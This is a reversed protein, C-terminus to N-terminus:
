RTIVQLESRRFGNDSKVTVIYAGNSLSSTNIQVKREFGPKTHQITKGDMTQVLVESIPFNAEVIFHDRAPNPYMNLRYDAYVDHIVSTPEVFVNFSCTEQQGRSDTITWTISTNDPITVGNLSRDGNINNSLSEINFDDWAFEPDLEGYEAVFYAGAGVNAVFYQDDRCVLHPPYDAYDGMGSWQSDLWPLREIIFDKLMTIEEEHTEPWEVNPWLYTGLVPWRDYNRDIAPGMLTVCSDIIHEINQWSLVNSRLDDWRGYAIDAYWPDEMMRRWHFMRGGRTYIFGDDAYVNGYNVNGWSLNYDWVPGSFFKGGDSDKDKYFYTSFHYCDVNMSMENIFMMHIYSFVDTYKRYGDLSDRFNSSILADEFTKTFDVIYRRQEYAMDEYKPDYFMYLSQLGYPRDSPGRWYEYSEMDTTKDNRVLYGGTLEDGETDTPLLKAINVRGSDQKIKEILVYIGQYDGNLVVEVFRTRPASEGMQRSLKFTLVNKILTKDSYPANLIWDNEAPMGLLSVNLNSDQATRTEIAYQKKPWGSSSEGRREIGIHGSYVNPTDYQSSTDGETYIIDMWAHVKPEDPISNTTNIVVIPLHSYLTVPPKFWQPPDSYGTVDETFNAHLFVNSSMDSSTTGVNHIEVALINNGNELAQGYVSESLNWREPLLGQYLAAEHDRELTMDWSYPKTINGSAIETGNLYAAFGDDYDMDLILQRLLATDEINFTYRMYVSQTGSPVITADDDDGYGIGNLGDTWGSDDFDNDKWADGIEQDPIMYKCTMGTQVISKWHDTGQSYVTLSFVFLSIIFPIRM